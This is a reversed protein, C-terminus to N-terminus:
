QLLCVRIFPTIRQHAALRFGASEWCRQWSSLAHFHLFGPGFALFNAFDRAHEVVIVSGDPNLHRRSEAFWASRESESRLEHISLVGLVLDAQFDPWRDFPTAHDEPQPPHLKRARRISPETMTSPNFHDLVTIDWEPHLKRLPQSVEDFGTHCILVKGVHTGAILPKIWDWQYLSSFDYVWYSALLSGTLFWSAGLATALALWWAWDSSALALGGLSIALVLSAIVYMPWNLRVITLVGQAPSRHPIANM